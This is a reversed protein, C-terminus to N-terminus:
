ATNESKAYYIIQNIIPDKEIVITLGLLKWM